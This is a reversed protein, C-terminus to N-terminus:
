IHATKGSDLPNTRNNMNEKTNLNIVREASAITEPRHAIIVRTIKLRKIIDNVRKENYIDLHSTAEDMFLIRPRKYLARALLIRQKQGGSLTSGVDGVLTNYGMPMASIEDHIAAIRACEQIWQMDINHSFFSINEQISCAFLQDDQMVVGIIKRYNAIGFKNLPVGGITIEGVTPQYIGTLLKLMTSKGCGSPGIIAVSEGSQIEFNISNFILREGIGYKFGVNTVKISFETLPLLEDLKGAVMDPETLAIDALRECQFRLLKFEFLKDILSSFRTAFQTKYGVFAFIMGTSFSNEIALKAGLGVIIIGELGFILKKGIDFILNLRKTRLGANKKDVITNLWLAGREIEKNFLRIACIGRITELFLTQQRAEEAVESETSSLLATYLSIRLAIYLTLAALTVLSLVPSYLFMLLLTGVSMFGDLIAGVFSNTLTAQISHITNFKSIVDGSHRKEFFSIPLKILHSFLNALWQLNLTESMVLVAWARVAEITVSTIQIIGFGICLTVLLNQDSTLVAQDVVLQNFFPSLLALAELTIALGLVQAMSAKLGVVKGTLQRISIKQKEIRAKFGIAPKLELAVGTFMSSVEVLSYERVGKAPDYIIAKRHTVKKLVVYHNMEWHLICPVNLARLENLDLRLPRSLFNLEQAINIM